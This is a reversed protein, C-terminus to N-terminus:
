ILEGIYKHLLNYGPDSELLAAKEAYADELAPATFSKFEVAILNDYQYFAFNGISKLSDPFVLVKINKNSNGAYTDIRYTGEAVEFTTVNLAAPISKLELHNSPLVIYLAGNILRAYENIVGDDTTEKDDVYYSYKALNPCEEFVLQGIKSLNKSFTFEVLESNMQFAGDEIISLKPAIIKKVSVLQFAFQGVKELENMEGLEDLSYCKVFAAEEITKVKALNVSELKECGAFAYGGIVEIKELNIEKLNACESFALREIKKITDPLIVRELRSHNYFARSGIQLVDIDKYKDKIEYTKSNGFVRYVEYGKIEDNYKYTIRPINYYLIIALLLIFAIFGTIIFIIKNKKM